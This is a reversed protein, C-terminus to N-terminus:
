VSPPGGKVVVSYMEEFSKNEEVEENFNSKFYVKAMRRVLKKDLGLETSIDNVVTKQHDREAAARTMSDNLSDIANKLKQKDQQSLSNVSVHPKNHGITSM